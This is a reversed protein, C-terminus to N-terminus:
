PRDNVKIQGVDHGPSVRYRYVLKVEAERDQPRQKPTSKTKSGLAPRETQDLMCQSTSKSYYGYVLKVEAGTGHDKNRHVKSGLAPGESKDSRCRSRSVRYRYVLKM